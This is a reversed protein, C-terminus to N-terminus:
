DDAQDARPLYVTFTSGVGEQSHVDICGDHQKAIAQAISLGLGIGGTQRARSKDVRYFRVFVFPLHQPAIGIGNDTVSIQWRKIPAAKWQLTVKVVAKTPSYKAANDLLNIFLQALLDRNGLVFATSSTNNSFIFQTQRETHVQEMQQIVDMLLSSLDILSRQILLVDARASMLMIDVLRTMQDVDSEMSKLMETLAQVDRPRNLALTLQAKLLALPTRLEHSVDATFRRENDFAAQLRDLMTDFTNALQHVEDMPGTLALRETLNDRSIRQAQTSIAAIPSLAQGAVFLGALASLLLTPLLTIAFALFTQERLHRLSQMSVGVVISGPAEVLREHLVRMPDGTDLQQEIVQGIPISPVATNPVHGFDAHVQGDADLIWGFMGREVLVAIEDESAVLRGNSLDVATTLQTASLKLINNLVASQERHLVWWGITVLIILLGTNILMTWLMLRLRLFSIKHMM